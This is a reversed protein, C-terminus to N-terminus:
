EAPEHPYSTCCSVCWREVEELVREGMEDTALYKRRVPALQQDHM